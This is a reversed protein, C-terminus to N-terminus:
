VTQLLCWLKVSSKVPFATILLLFDLLPHASGGFVGRGNTPMWLSKSRFLHEELKEVELAYSIHVHEARNINSDEM